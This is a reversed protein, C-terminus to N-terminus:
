MSREGLHVVNPGHFVGEWNCLPHEWVVTSYLAIVPLCVPFEWYKCVSSLLKKIVGMADAAAM